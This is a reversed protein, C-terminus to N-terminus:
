LRMFLRASFLILIYTVKVSKPTPMAAEGTALEITDKASDAGFDVGLSMHTYSDGGIIITRDDM